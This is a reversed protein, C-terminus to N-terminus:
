PRTTWRNIRNRIPHIPTARRNHIILPSQWPRLIITTLNPRKFHIIICHWHRYIIRRYGYFICRYSNRYQTVVAIWISM